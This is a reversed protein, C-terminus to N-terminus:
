GQRDPMTATSTASIEAAQYRARGTEGPMWLEEVVDRQDGDGQAAREEPTTCPTEATCAVRTVAGLGTARSDRASDPSPPTAKSYHRPPM